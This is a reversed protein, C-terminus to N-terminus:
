RAEQAVSLEDRNRELTSTIAAELSRLSRVLASRPLKRVQAGSSFAAAAEPDWALAALVPVGLVQSVERATFPRGEGILVIGLAAGAGVEDLEVKLGAVWSRAGALAVLDSRCAVLLLDSGTLFPT